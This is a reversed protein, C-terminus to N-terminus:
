FIILFKIRIRWKFLVFSWELEVNNKSM